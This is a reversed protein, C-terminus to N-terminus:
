EGRLARTPDVAAARRAPIIAAVAASAFLAVTVLTLVVPDRPEIGYLQSAVPGAAALAAPVAFLAAPVGIGLGIGTQLLAGRLVDRLVRGKSAGLAMRVGIERTRRAVGYATVGYLGLSALGLALVGYAATLSAMLRNIRFNVSVQDALALVRVVTINPEAEAIAQKILPELAGAPQSSHLIVAGALMSRAQDSMQTNDVYRVSQLAPLFIMPRTPRQAGTYKVDASVGVIEYDTAHSADGIGLRRGIGASEPLFRRVFAENVVAVKAAGATDREDIARGRTIATGTTEFYQPGVRNWSSGDGRPDPQRGDISIGSSWNNGEMPSYLAFTANQVGPIRRLAALMSDYVAALRVPETVAPM